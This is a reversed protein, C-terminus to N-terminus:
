EGLNMYLRLKSPIFQIHALGNQIFTHTRSLDDIFVKGKFEEFLGLLEWVGAIVGLLVLTRCVGGM